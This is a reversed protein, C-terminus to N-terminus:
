KKQEWNLSTKFFENATISNIADQKSATLLSIVRRDSLFDHREIFIVKKGNRDIYEGAITLSDNEWKYSKAKWSSIGLLSMGSIKKKELNVIFQKRDKLNALYSKKSKLIQTSGRLKQNKTHKWITTKGIERKVQWHLKSGYAPIFFLFLFLYKAYKMGIEDTIM